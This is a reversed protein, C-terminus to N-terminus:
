YEVCGETYSYYGTKYRNYYPTETGGVTAPEYCHEIKTGAGQSHTADTYYFYTYLAFGNPDYPDEQAVAPSVAFTLVALGSLVAKLKAYKSM